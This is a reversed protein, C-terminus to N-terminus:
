SFSTDYLRFVSCADNFGWFVRGRISMWRAAVRAVKPKNTTPGNSEVHYGNKSRMDRGHDSSWYPIHVPGTTFTHRSNTNRSGTKKHQKKPYMFTVLPPVMWINRVFNRRSNRLVYLHLKPNQGGTMNSLKRNTGTVARGMTTLM